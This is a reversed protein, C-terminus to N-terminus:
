RSSIDPEEPLSMVFLGTMNAFHGARGANNSELPKGNGDRIAREQQANLVKSVCRIKGDTDIRKEIM